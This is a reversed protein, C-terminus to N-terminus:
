RGLARLYEAWNVDFTVDARGGETAVVLLPSLQQSAMVEAKARRVGHPGMVVFDGAVIQEGPEVKFMRGLWPKM